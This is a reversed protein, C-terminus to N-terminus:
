ENALERDHYVQLIKQATEARAPTPYVVVLRTGHLLSDEYVFRDTEVKNRGIIWGFVSGWFAGVLASVGAMVYPNISIDLAMNPLLTQYLAYAVGILGGVLAGALAGAKVAAAMSRREAPPPTPHVPMSEVEFVEYDASTFGSRALQAVAQDAERASEYVRTVPETRGARSLEVLRDYGAALRNRQGELTKRLGDPMSAQLAQTYAQLLEAEGEIVGDLAVHQRDERGLTMAAAIDRVGEQVDGTHDDREPESGGTQALYHGLQRNFLARQQAYAKLLLKVGRTEISEAAHNLASEQMM